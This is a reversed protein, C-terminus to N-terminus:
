MKTPCTLEGVSFLKWKMVLDGYVHHKAKFTNSKGIYVHHRGHVTYIRKEKKKRKNTIKKRYSGLFRFNHSVPTFDCVNIYSEYISFMLGAVLEFM